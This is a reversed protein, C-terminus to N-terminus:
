FLGSSIPKSLPFWNPWLACKELLDVLCYTFLCIQSSNITSFIQLYLGTTMLFTEDEMKLAIANQRQAFDRLVLHVPHLQLPDAHAEGHQLGHEAPVVDVKPDETQVAVVGQIVSQLGEDFEQQGDRM